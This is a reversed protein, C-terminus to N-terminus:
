AAEYGLSCYGIAVLLYWLRLKILVPRYHASGSVMIDYKGRPLIEGGCGAALGWRAM